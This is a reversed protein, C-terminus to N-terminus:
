FAVVISRDLGDFSNVDITGEVVKYKPEFGAEVVEILYKNFRAKDKDGKVPYVGQKEFHEESEFLLEALEKGYKNSIYQYSNRSFFGFGGYNISKICKLIM